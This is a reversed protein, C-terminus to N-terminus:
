RADPVTCDWRKAFRKAGQEGTDRSFGTPFRQRSGSYYRDITWHLRYHDHAICQVSHGYSKQAHHRSM